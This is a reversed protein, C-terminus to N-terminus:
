EVSKGDIHKESIGDGDPFIPERGRALAALLQERCVARLLAEPDEGDAQYVCTVSLKKM